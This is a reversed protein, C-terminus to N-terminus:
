EVAIRTQRWRRRRRRPRQRRRHREARKGGQRAAVGLRGNPMGDVSAYAASRCRRRRRRRRRSSSSSRRRAPQVSAVDPIFKAFLRQHADAWIVVRCWRRRRRRRFPRRPNGHRRRRRGCDVAISLGFFSLLGNFAAIIAGDVMTQRELGVNMRCVQIGRKIVNILKIQDPSYKRQM